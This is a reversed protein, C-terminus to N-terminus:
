RRVTGIAWMVFGSILCLGGLPAVSLSLLVPVLTSAGPFLTAMVVLPLLGIALLLVGLQMFAIGWRSLRM